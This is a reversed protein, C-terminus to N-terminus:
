RIILSKGFRPPTIKLIGNENEVVVSPFSVAFTTGEGSTIYSIEGGNLEVLNKTFNLGIGTGGKEGKVFREFLNKEVEPPIGCGTDAVKILINSDSCDLSMRVVGDADTNKLSNSLLNYLIHELMTYDIRCILEEPESEFSIEISSLKAFETFQELLRNLFSVMDRVEPKASLKGQNFRTFDLLQNILRLLINANYDILKVRKRDDETLANSSTLDATPAIILSLPTRFEHSINTFFNTQMQSMDQMRQSEVKALRIQNLQRMRLLNYRYLVFVLAIALFLFTTLAYPTNWWPNLITIAVRREGGRSSDSNSTEVRFTYEGPNMNNYTAKSFQIDGEIWESDFGELKYRYRNLKPDVYHLSVFDLTFHNENHRLTIHSCNDIHGDLLVRGNVKEGINVIKNYLSLSKIYIQTSQNDVGINSNDVINLGDRSGFLLEGSRRSASALEGFESGMVGNSNGYSCLTSDRPNYKNIGRNTSIWVAGDRDRELSKIYPNLFGRKITKFTTPLGNCDLKTRYLGGGLTGVWAYGDDDFLIPVIYNNSIAGKVSSDYHYQNLKYEKSEIQKASMIYLGLSTGIWMNGKPDFRINRVYLHSDYTSAINLPIKEFRDEAIHYRYIGEDFYGLWLSEEKPDVSCVMINNKVTPHTILRTFFKPKNYNGNWRVKILQDSVMYIDRGVNCISHINGVSSPLEIPIAQEYRNKPIFILGAGKRHSGVWLNSDGDEHISRVNNSFLSKDYIISDFIISRTNIIKVGENTGVWVQGNRDTTIHHIELDYLIQQPNERGLVGNEDAEVVYLGRNSSYWYLNDTMTINSINARIHKNFKSGDYIYVGDHSLAYLVGNLLRFQAINGRHILKLTDNILSYAGSRTAIMTHYPTNTIVDMVQAGMDLDKRYSYSNDQKNYSFIHLSTGEYVIADGNALFKVRPYNFDRYNVVDRLLYSRDHAVDYIVINDAICIWLEGNPAQEIHRYHPAYIRGSKDVNVQEFGLGDYTNLGGNTSIWMLGKQDQHIYIVDSQSLGDNVGVSRINYNVCFASNVVLALAILLSYRSFLKM